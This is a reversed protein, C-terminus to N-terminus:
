SFILRYTATLMDYHTINKWPKSSLLTLDTITELHRRWRDTCLACSRGCDKVERLGMDLVCMYIYRRYSRKRSVSVCIGGTPERGLCLCMYVERLGKDLVYVYM